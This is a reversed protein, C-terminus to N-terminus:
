EEKPEKNPEQESKEKAPEGKSLVTSLAAVQEKTLIALVKTVGKSGANAAMPIDIAELAAKIDALPYEKQEFTVMAPLDSKAENDLSAIACLGRAALDNIRELDETVLIDGVKYVKKHNLKDKFPTLVKLKM